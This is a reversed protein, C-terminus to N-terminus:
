SILPVNEFMNIRFPVDKKSCSAYFSIGDEFGTKNYQFIPIVECDKHNIKFDFNIEIPLNYKRKSYKTGFKLNTEYLGSEGTNFTFLEFSINLM